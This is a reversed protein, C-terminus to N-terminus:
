IGSSTNQTLQFNTFVKENSFSIATGYISEIKKFVPFNWWLSNSTFIFYELAAAKCFMEWGIWVNISKLTVTMCLPKLSLSPIRVWLWKTRLRVSLLQILTQRCVLHNHTRIGDSDSLNWIDRRNWALVKEVNLCGYLTSKSQFVYTAHYYCKAKLLFLEETNECSDRKQDSDKFFILSNKKNFQVGVGQVKKFM